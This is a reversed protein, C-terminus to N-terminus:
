NQIMINLCRHPSQRGTGLLNGAFAGDDMPFPSGAFDPHWIQTSNIRITMNLKGFNNRYREDSPKQM